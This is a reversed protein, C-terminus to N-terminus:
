PAPEKQVEEIFADLSLKDYKKLRAAQHAGLPKTRLEDDVLVVGSMGGALRYYGGTWQLFLVYNKGLTLLESGKLRKSARHGNM